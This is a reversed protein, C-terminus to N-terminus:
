FDWILWQIDEYASPFVRRSERLMLDQFIEKLTNKFKQFVGSFSGRKEFHGGQCARCHVDLYPWRRIDSSTQWTRTVSISSKRVMYPCLSLKNFLLDLYALRMKSNEEWQVIQVINRVHCLRCRRPPTCLLCACNAVSWAHFTVNLCLLRESSRAMNVPWPKFSLFLMKCLFVLRRDTRGGGRCVFIAFISIEDRQERRM